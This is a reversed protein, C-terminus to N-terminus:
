TELVTKSVWSTRSVPSSFPHQQRIVMFKINSSQICWMQHFYDILSLITHYENHDIHVGFNFNRAEGIITHAFKLLPDNSFNDFPQAATLLTEAPM